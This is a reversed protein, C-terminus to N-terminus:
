DLLIGNHQHAVLRALTGGKAVLNDYTGQEVIRGRELVVVRDANRITSLRHAIVLTTRGTRLRELAEQLLRENETDLNSVAEDLILIPADNLFARAIALRQRQGGSLQVGREGVNTAYQQPLTAIFDHALASRAAQEVDEDSAEPKGLRINEGVSTNFLYIDQPVLSMYSRLIAQPFSRLDYGGLTIRGSSVDWFRMLLHTCTSKGAGSHGVLVVTEGQRVEFSVDQLVEDRQVGYSFRVQEFRIHPTIPDPPATSVTDSVLPPQDLIGFVRATAAGIVGWQSAMEVINTLPVFISAALVISVPFWVLNVAGNAALVASVVLVSLTGIVVIINTVAAELGIRMGYALEVDFLSRNHQRLRTTQDDARGFMVVERLGQVSDIVEANVFGLRERLTTGQSGARRQLWVPVTCVFIISPLLILPLTPHIMGLGILAGLVVLMTIVVDAVTHAYFWELQEVDGMVTMAVDGSRRKLLYGPALRELAWYLHGRLDALIRYALDHCIWMHIFQGLGRVFVLIGLIWFYPLLNAFAEGGLVLGVLGAGVSAGAIVAGHHCVGALVTGVFLRRHPRIVRILQRIRGLLSVTAQVATTEVTGAVIDNTTM